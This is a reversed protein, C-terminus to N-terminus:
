QGQSSLKFEQQGFKTWAIPSKQHTILYANAKTFHGCSKQDGPYIFPQATKYVGLGSPHSSKLILHENPNHIYEEMSQAHGGWLMWVLNPQQSLKQIIEIVFPKWGLQAHSNAESLRVSLATNLLLVGQKAWHTLDGNSLSGLGELMLAKNINRLSSPFQKSQLQIDKPVSFALGQALGPSHYPDQGLIVVKVQNVPTLHLANFIQERDPRIADGHQQYEIAFKKSLSHWDSSQLYDNLLLRWDDPIFQKLDM